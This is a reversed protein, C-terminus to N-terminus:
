ERKLQWIIHEDKDHWRTQYIPEGPGTIMRTMKYGFKLWVLKNTLYCRRPWWAFKLEAGLCRDYFYNDSFYEELYEYRSAGRKGQYGAGMM